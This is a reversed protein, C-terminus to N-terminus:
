RPPRNPAAPPQASLAQLTATADPERNPILSLTCAQEFVADIREWRAAASNLATADDAEARALCAAAWDNQEAFPAADALRARGDPLGAALALEAGAARAYATWWPEAFDAFAREVLAEADDFRGTHVATRADVFAMCGALDPSEGADRCGSMEVARARWLGFRDSRRLGHVLAAMAAASSMWAMMPSGDGRWRDWMDEAHALAEDFRGTLALVRILRPAAIYPHGGIPDETLSRRQVARAAPLDGAAIAAKGAAHFADIIEAASAPDGAPLAAVLALREGGIRHAERTDGARATTTSLVDLAGLLQVDDGTARAAAVARRALEVSGEHWARATLLTATVHPDAAPPAEALLGARTRSFDDADSRRGV